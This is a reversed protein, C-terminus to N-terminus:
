TTHAGLARTLSKNEAEERAAEYDVTEVWARAIWPHANDTRAVFGNGADRAIDNALEGLLSRVPDSKMLQNIGRLNLKVDVAKPM